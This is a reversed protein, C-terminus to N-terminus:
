EAPNVPHTKHWPLNPEGRLIVKIDALKEGIRALALYFKWFAFLGGGYVLVIAFVSMVEIGM